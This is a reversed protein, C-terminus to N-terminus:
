WLDNEKNIDVDNEAKFDPIMVLILKMKGSYTFETRALNERVIILPM